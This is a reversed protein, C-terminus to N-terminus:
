VSDVIGERDSGLIHGDAGVAGEEERQAIEVPVM